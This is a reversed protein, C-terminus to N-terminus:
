QTISNANSRIGQRRALEVFADEVRMGYDGRQTASDADRLSAGIEAVIQPDSNEIPATSDNDFTAILRDSAVEELSRGQEAAISALAQEISSPLDITVSM